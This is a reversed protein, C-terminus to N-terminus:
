RRISQRQAQVALLGFGSFALCILLALLPTSSNGSGSGTSTPALTAALSPTATEGLVSQTGTVTVTGPVYVISYKPDVAGSCSSPYTGALSSSTATTTCTPPTTLSAATDGDVWGSYIPTIAPVPDGFVMTGSSATITLIPQATVTVTGPVYDITYNPDVAGTCSSPYTGVPSSSTATTTCTPATTLSAASDGDVWGSYIPTITPPTGGEVMTGNSATITLTVPGVTLQGDVYSFAYNASVGGSCTVPYDGAASTPGAGTTCTPPTTLAAATESNVFGSYTPTLTPNAAGYARSVTPGTVTLPAKTTTVKGAVYTFVYKSSVGGSCTVPYDAPASTPVASTTCTPRTTLSAATDGGTFGSYIPTLTPNAAGYARSVTPGTVTLPVGVVISATNSHSHSNSDHSNTCDASTRYDRVTVTFDHPGVPTGTTTVTLTLNATTDHAIQVCANPTFSASLHLNGNYSIDTVRFWPHDHGGELLWDWGGAHVVSISYTASGTAAVPNPNQNATIHVSGVAASATGAMTGMALLLGAIIVGGRRLVGSSRLSLLM